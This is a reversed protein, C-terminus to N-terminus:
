ERDSEASQVCDDILCMLEYGEKCDILPKKGTKLCDLFHIMEDRYVHDWNCQVDIDEWVGEANTCIKLCENDRYRLAGETGYVEISRGFYPQLFDMHISLSVDNELDILLEASDLVDWDKHVVKHGLCKVKRPREGAFWLSYDIEHSFDSIVGGGLSRKARYNTHADTIAKKGAVSARISFVKGLKGSEVIEKIKRYPTAFRLCYAIFAFKGTQECVDVMRRASEVSEAIPKEMMVNLGARACKELDGCHAFNPTCVVVGDFPHRLAEDLSLYTEKVGYRAAVEELRAKNQECLAVECLQYNLISKLHVEGIYGCGHILLKM